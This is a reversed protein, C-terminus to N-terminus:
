KNEIKSSTFQTTALQLKSVGMKDPDYMSYYLRILRENDLQFATLGINKFQKIFHDRKPILRPKVEDLISTINIIREKKGFLQKIGSTKQVVSGTEPIVVYFTKDLVDKNATLNNIFQIYIDIQKKLAESIQKERYVSLRDIYNTIDTRETRIVIQFPFELSNLLAAFNMIKIDQEKESLLDFNLANVELVLSIMGNKLIVLDDRIDEIALHQQTSPIIPSPFM